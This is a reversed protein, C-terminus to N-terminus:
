QENLLDRNDLENEDDEKYYQKFLEHQTTMTEYFHVIMQVDRPTYGISEFNEILSKWKKLM